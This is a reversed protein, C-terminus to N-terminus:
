RQRGVSDPSVRVTWGGYTSVATGFTGAVRPICAAQPRSRVRHPSQAFTVRPGCAPCALTQAHFRRDAPDRYEAACAPCPAFAAMATNARDFPVGRHWKEVPGGDPAYVGDARPPIDWAKPIIQRTKDAQGNLLNRAGLVASGTSAVAAAAAALTIISRRPTM